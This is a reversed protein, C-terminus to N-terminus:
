PIPHSRRRRERVARCGIVTKAQPEDLEVTMPQDRMASTDEPEDRPEAVIGVIAHRHRHERVVSATGRLLNASQDAPQPVAASVFLGSLCVVVGAVSWAFRKTM